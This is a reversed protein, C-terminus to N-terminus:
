LGRAALGEIITKPGRKAVKAPLRRGAPDVVGVAATSEAVRRRPKESRASEAGTTEEEGEEEQVKQALEKTLRRGRDLLAQSLEKLKQYRTESRLRTIREKRARRLLADSLRETHALRKLLDDMSEEAPAGAAGGATEPPKGSSKDEAPPPEKKDPPHEASDVRRAMEVLLGAVADPKRKPKGVATRREKVTGTAAGAKANTAQAQWLGVIRKHETQLAARTGEVLTAKKEATDHLLCAVRSGVEVLRLPDAGTTERAERLLAEPVDASPHGKTAPVIGTYAVEVSPSYVADFTECQYNDQVVEVTEEDPVLDGRGRSSIGIPINCLLLEELIRGNPTHLVMYEGVVYSGAPVKFDNGEELDVMEPVRDILHAARGLHTMGSEPHELEGLALRSEIRRVLPSDEALEKQWVSRPYLRNNLNKRDMNQFIGRARLREGGNVTAREVVQHHSVIPHMKEELLPPRKDEAVRSM